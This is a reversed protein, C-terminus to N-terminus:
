LKLDLIDKIMKVIDNVKINKISFDKKNIKFPNIVTNSEIIKNNKTTLSNRYGPTPGFITISPVGLAWAMHVPGTDGGIILSARSLFYKLENFMMKHMVHVNPSLLKIEKALSLEFDNGWVLIFNCNLKEMIEVYSSPPYNKAKFSSGPIIVINPKDSSLCDFDQSTEYFLFPRKQKLDTETINCGLAQNIIIANRIIVNTSHDVFIKKNYFISALKERSSNKDLGFTKVSPIVKTVIGSKILNQLDIVLDYKNLKRIQLIERILLLISKKEKAESFRITQVKDIHPNNELIGKNSFDVFWDISSKPYKDKIFQLVVMAHVIDGIASLKVIALRMDPM